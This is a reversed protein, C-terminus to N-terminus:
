VCQRPINREREVAQGWEMASRVRRRAIQRLPLYGRHGGGIRGGGFTGDGGAPKGCPRGRPGRVRGRRGAGAGAAVAEGGRVVCDDAEFVQFGDRAEPGVQDVDVLGDVGLFQEGQLADGEGLVGEEAAGAQFGAEEGGAQVFGQVTGAVGDDGHGFVQDAVQLDGAGLVAVVGEGFAEATDGAVAVGPGEEEAVLSLGFAKVTACDLFELAEFGQAALQRIFVQRVFGIECDLGFFIWSRGVQGFRVWGLRSYRRRSGARLRDTGRRGGATRCRAAPEWRSTCVSRGAAGSPGGRGLGGTGGGPGRRM